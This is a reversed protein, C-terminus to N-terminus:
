AHTATEDLYLNEPAIRELMIRFDATRKTQEAIYTPHRMISVGFRALDDKSARSMIFVPEAHKLMEAAAFAATRQSIEAYNPGSVLRLPAPLAPAAASAMLGALFGRRNM